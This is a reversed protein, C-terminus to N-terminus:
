NSAAPVVLTLVPHPGPSSVYLRGGEAHALSRALSLGIGHGEGPGRRQFAAEPDGEFGPGDDAFDVVLWEDRRRASITVAGGGHREANEILVGLVQRLV